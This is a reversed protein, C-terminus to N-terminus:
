KVRTLHLAGGGTMYSMTMETATLQTIAYYLVEEPFQVKVIVADKVVPLNVPEKSPNTVISWEGTVTADDNGAYTDTVNGSATFTRASRSDDQNRWVGVIGTRVKDSPNTSVPKTSETPSTSTAVEEETQVRTVRYNNVLWYGAITLVVGAALGVVAALIIQTRTDMNNTDM